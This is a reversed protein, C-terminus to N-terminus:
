SKDRQRILVSRTVPEMWNSQWKSSQPRVWRAGAARRRNSIEREKARAPNLAAAAQNGKRILGTVENVPQVGNPAITFSERPTIVLTMQRTASPNNFDPM